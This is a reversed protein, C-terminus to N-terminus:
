AARILIIDLFTNPSGAGVDITGGGSSNYELLTILNGATLSAFTSVPLVMEGTGSAHYFASAITSGNRAINASFTKQDVTSTYYVSGFLLYYGTVLIEYHAKKIAYYYSAAFDAGGTKVITLTDADTVTQVFGYGTNLTGAADSAWVVKVRSLQAAVFVADDDEIKTSSSDNDSQRYAGAAGYWYGNQFKSALDFGATDLEIRYSSDSPFDLQAANLYLHALSTNPHITSSLAAANHDFLQKSSPIKTASNEPTAATDIETVEADVDNALSVLQGTLRVPRSATVTAAAHDLTNTHIKAIETDAVLSSGAVKDVKGSLDQNDSGAAHKLDTASELLVETIKVTQRIAEGNADPVSLATVQHTNMNLDGFLSAIFGAINNKNFTVGLRDGWELRMLENAETPTASNVGYSFKLVGIPNVAGQEPAVFQAISMSQSGATATTKWGSGYMLIPPSYKDSSVTAPDTTFYSSGSLVTISESSGMWRWGVQNMFFGRLMSMRLVWAESDKQTYINFLGADAYGPDPEFSIAMKITHNAGGSYSSGQFVLAPAYQKTAGATSETLNILSFTPTFTSAIANKIINLLNAVTDVSLIVNGDKDCLQIATAADTVPKIVLSDGEAVLATLGTVQHNNLDIDATMAGLTTDTGQVHGAGGGVVPKELISKNHM